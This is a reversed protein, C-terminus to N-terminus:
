GSPTGNASETSRDRIPSDDARDHADSLIFHDPPEAWILPTGQAAKSARTAAVEPLAVAAVTAAVERASTGEDPATQSPGDALEVFGAAVDGFVITDYNQSAQNRVIGAYSRNVPTFQYKGTNATATTLGNFFRQVAIVDQTTVLSDGNVDAATLECGSLFTGTLFQKQVAIVDVTNINASGPTRAAKTPTVTYNGGSPLSSFTYNGAGDSM